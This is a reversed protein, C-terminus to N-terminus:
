HGIKSWTEIFAVININLGLASKCLETFMDVDTYPPEEPILTIYSQIILNFEVNGKIGRQFKDVLNIAVSTLTLTNATVPTVQFKM